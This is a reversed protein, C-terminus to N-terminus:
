KQGKWEYNILSTLYHDEWKGNVQLSSRMLGEVEFGIEKLLRASKENAPMYCAEIRRLNLDHFAFWAVAAVAERMLGLGQYRADLSYGLTATYLARFVIDRLSVTGIYESPNSPLILRFRYSHGSRAEDQDREAAGLWARLDYYDQDRLPEWPQLHDRNRRVYDVIEPEEGMAAIRLITRETTIVPLGNLWRVQAPSAIV